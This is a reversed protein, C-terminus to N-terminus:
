LRLNQRAAKEISELVADSPSLGLDVAMLEHQNMKEAKSDEASSRVVVVGDPNIGPNSLLAANHTSIFLQGGKKSQRISRGFFSSFERLIGDNLSVEPDEIIAPHGALENCIWLIVILRIIGDSIQDEQFVARHGNRGKFKAELHPRGSTKDMRLNLSELQPILTKLSAEVKKLRANRIEEDTLFARSIFNQGFPDDPLLRSDIQNSFRILRPILCFYRIQGLLNALNKFENHNSTQEINTRSFDNAISGEKGCVRECIIKSDRTKYHRIASERLVFPKDSRKDSGFTLGYTWLIDDDEDSLDVEIEVDASKRAYVCRVKGMGGRKHVAQQLGGDGLTAVDKLFNLADLLNSKGAGNPGLVYVIGPLDSIEVKKFNRWNRLKLRSIRM